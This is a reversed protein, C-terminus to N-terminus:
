LCESIATDRDIRGLDGFTSLFRESDLVSYAPRRAKAPYEGSSCPIIRCSTNGSIRAIETAFGYWTCAPADAYHFLGTPGIYKRGGYHSTDCVIGCIARALNGAYTPCTTQDDVVRIEGRTRLLSLITQVYNKGYRSYIGSTRIIIHPCVAEAVLREGELKTRGYANLPCPLDDERYPRPIVPASDPSDFNRADSNPADSSIFHVGDFVYDTSIHILLTSHAACVRALNGVAIANVAAAAEPSDEAGEVDTWAACNVVVDANRSSIFSEVASFDRIDLDASTAPFINHGSGALADVISRGLQGGTGTVVINLRCVNKNNVYKDADTMCRGTIIGISGRLSM